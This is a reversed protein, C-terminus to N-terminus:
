RPKNRKMCVTCTYLMTDDPGQGPYLYEKRSCLHCIYEIQEAPERAAAREPYRLPIGDKNVDPPVKKDEKFAIKKPATWPVKISVKYVKGDKEITRPVPTADVRRSPAICNSFRNSPNASSVPTSDPKEFPSVEDPEIEAVKKPPRGRRKNTPAVDKVQGNILQQAGAYDGADILAKIQEAVINKSNKVSKKKAM